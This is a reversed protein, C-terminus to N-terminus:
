ISWGGDVILTTGTVYSAGQSILYSLAGIVDERQAMRGLATQASYSRVFESNHNNEVGGPSICNVRIGYEGWEMALHRTLGLIASKTVSYALPNSLPNGSTPDIASLYMSKRPERSGYISGFNIISGSANKLSPFLNKSLIFYSTINVALIENWDLIEYTQTPSFFGTPKSSALNVLLDIEPYKKSLEIGLKELQIQNSLDCEIYYNSTSHGDANANRDIGVVFYDNLLFQVVATGLFGSSGTVVAVKM